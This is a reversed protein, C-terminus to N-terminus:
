ASDAARSPEDGEGGDALIEKDLELKKILREIEKVGIRGNVILRFNAEKSLLGTTLIREDAMLDTDRKKPSSADSRLSTPHQAEAHRDDGKGDSEQGPQDQNGGSESAAEQELFQCTATYARIAPEVASEVFGIRILYSRLASDSFRNDPFREKLTAFLDPAFAAAVLAAQRQKPTEPYLIDVALQSVKVEGKTVREMLGYHMLAAIATDSAGSLGSYGLHGAVVSREIPNRRDADHVKRVRNIADPLSMNPHGPSRSRAM